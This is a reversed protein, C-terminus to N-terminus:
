QASDRVLAAIAADATATGDLHPQWDRVVADRLGQWGRSYLRYRYAYPRYDADGIKGLTRRALEGATYFVIVHFLDRPPEVRQRASEDALATFVRGGVARTHSAEHFLMEFAMDGQYEPNDAEIVTHGATGPPGEITYGGFPPAEACADVVIPDRPWRVGYAAEMAAIMAQQHEALMARVAAIWRDNLERQATWYHARYISAAAALARRTAADAGDIRDPLPADSAVRTLANNIRTLAPDFLLNHQAHGRYADLAATWTAREAAPLEDLRVKLPARGDRRHAEADLVHHLNVWFSNQFLFRTAPLPYRTARENPEPNQAAAICAAFGLVWSGAVRFGSGAVRM